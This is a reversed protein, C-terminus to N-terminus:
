CPPTRGRTNQSVEAHALLDRHLRGGRTFEVLFHDSAIKWADGPFHVIVRYSIAIQNLIIPVGVFGERGGLEVDLAEGDETIALLWPMGNELFYAYQADDGAEFLFKNRTLRVSRLHPRLREYEDPPLSALLPNKISENTSM